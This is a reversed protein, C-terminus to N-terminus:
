LIKQEKLFLVVKSEVVEKSLDSTDVYFTPESFLTHLKPDTTLSEYFGKTEKHQQRMYSLMEFKDADHDDKIREYAVELECDLYISGTIQQTYLARSQKM